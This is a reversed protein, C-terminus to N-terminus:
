VATDVGIGAIRTRSRVMTDFATSVRELYPRTYPFASAHDFNHRMAANAEFVFLQGGPTVTFDAGAFDLKLEDGVRELAQWAASGVVSAPDALYDQEQKQLAPSQAMTRYRDGSHIQWEDSALWAVPYIKGDIFFARAKRYIGDEGRCDAFEIAYIDTGPKMRRLATELDSKDRCLHMEHGTQRGAARVILPWCFGQALIHEALRNSNSDVRMRLTKPFRVGDLANLRQYNRDRGTALVRAPHNIVPTDPWESVHRTLVELSARCRDPCAIANVLLDPPPAQELDRSRGEGLYIASVDMRQTDLLNAISYHGGKFLTRFGGHGDRAIRYDAGDICCTRYIRPKGPRVRSAPAPKLGIARKVLLRAQKRDGRRFALASLALLVRHDDPDLELSQRYLTEAHEFSGAHLLKRATRLLPVDRGIATHATM